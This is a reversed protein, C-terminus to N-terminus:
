KVRKNIIMTFHKILELLITPFFLKNLLTYILVTNIVSLSIKLYINHIFDFCYHSVLTSVTAFLGFIFVDYLLNTFKYKINQKVLYFWVFFWIIQLVCLSLIVAHLGYSKCLLLVVTQCVGFAILSWMYMNSKGKSLILNSLVSSITLFAGGISLIRLYDVSQVWKEGITILIFEKAVLALGFLAPFALFSTFSLIKRFVRVQRDQNERIQNLTPQTVNNIMNTLVSQGMLSWKSAQTVIGIDKAEYFRGLIITFIHNNINIFINSVFIKSSFGFIERIPEFNINFTPKFSSFHWYLASTLLTYSVTQFALGWYAFNNYALLVGISNSLILATINTIAREKIRINRFLYANHAIGFSGLWFSLFSLRALPKLEPIKFYLAIYSSCFFLIVYLLTSIIISCWFVANYDQHNVKVKNAIGNVFGSEQFSSAIVSFITVMAVMGYDAPTLLRALIIGFIIGIGQQLVNSFGGVLFRTATKSKFSIEEEKQNQM